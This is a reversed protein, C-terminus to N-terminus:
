PRTMRQAEDDVYTPRAVRVGALTMVVATGILLTLVWPWGGTLQHVVGVLLPGIGAMLYGVPQVFGSLRATVQPDRSRATIMAIAATFAWGGLGLLTAWLWPVVAPVLWLGVYGAVTLVGFAVMVPTLDPSREVLVPMLFGGLIGLVSVFGLLGGAAGAPLGADRYIQPLWGFQVYANLAQMGFFVSLAVATPSRLLSGSPAVIPVGARDARDRRERVTLVAWPVLGVAAALGWVGLAARWGGPAVAAVPSAFMSAAAAGVLLMVSYVTMLRTVAGGGHRKIWAPVLVNGLAMGSLGVLTCALFALTSGTFTRLLFGGTILALGALVGATLGIRRSLAVAVAGIAAFTLGPLATLLGAATGDLGFQQRLEAMVPGVSTAGPRLSGAVVVVAVLALAPGVIIACDSRTNESM